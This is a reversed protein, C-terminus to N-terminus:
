EIGIPRFLPCRTSAWAQCTRKGSCDAPRWWLADVAKHGSGSERHEIQEMRYTVPQQIVPCKLSDSRTDVIRM